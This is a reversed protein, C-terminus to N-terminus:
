FCFFCENKEDVATCVHRDYRVCRVDLYDYCNGGIHDRKEVVLVTAGLQSAYREALVAGSLGAGAICVNFHQGKMLSGGQLGSSSTASTTTTSGLPSISNDYSSNTAMGVTAEWLNEPRCKQFFVFQGALLLSVVVITVYTHSSPARCKSPDSYNSNSIGNNLSRHSGQKTFSSGNM